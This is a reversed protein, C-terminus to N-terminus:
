VETVTRAGGVHHGGEVELTPVNFAGENKGPYKVKAPM